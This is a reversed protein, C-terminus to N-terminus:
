PSGQKIWQNWIAGCGAALAQAVQERYDPDVLRQRDELHTIFGLEVLIAPAKSWRLLAFDPRAHPRERRQHLPWRRLIDDFLYAADRGWPSPQYFLMMGKEAANSASNVHISLIFGARCQNAMRIRHNIDRRLRSGDYRGGLDVDSTRTLLVPIRNAKLYRETRLAIDLVIEKELVGDRNTGGDIGGHGPDLLIASPGICEIPPEGTERGSAFRWGYGLLGVCFLAVALWAAWRRERM